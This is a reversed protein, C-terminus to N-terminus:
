KGIKSNGGETGLFALEEQNYKYSQATQLAEKPSSKIEGGGERGIVALQEQDYIHNRAAVGAKTEPANFSFQDTGLLSTSRDEACDNGFLGLSFAAALLIVLLSKKLM